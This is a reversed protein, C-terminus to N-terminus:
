VTPTPKRGYLAIGILGGAIGFVVALALHGVIKILVVIAIVNGVNALIGELIPRAQPPMEAAGPLFRGFFGGLFTGALYALPILLVAYLIAGAIGSLAGLTVGDSNSLAASPTSGRYIAQCVM